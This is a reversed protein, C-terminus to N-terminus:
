CESDLYRELRAAAAVYRVQQERYARQDVVAGDYAAGALLSDLGRAAEAYDRAAARAEGPAADLLEGARAVLATFAAEIETATAREGFAEFPDNRTLRDLRSCFTAADGAESADDDGCAAVVLLATLLLALLRRM